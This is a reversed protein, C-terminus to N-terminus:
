APLCRASPVLLVQSHDCPVTQPWSSSMALKFPQVCVSVRKGCKKCAGKVACVGSHISFVCLRPPPVATPLAPVRVQYDINFPGFPDLAPRSGTAIFMVDSDAVARELTSFQFVDGKVLQAQPPLISAQMGAHINM